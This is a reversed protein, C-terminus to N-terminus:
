VSRVVSYRVLPARGAGRGSPSKKSRGHRAGPGVLATPAPGRAIHPAPGQRHPARRKQRRRPPRAHHRRRRVGTVGSQISRSRLELGGEFTRALTWGHGWTVQPGASHGQGIGAPAHVPICAAPHDRVTPCLVTRENVLSQPGTAPADLRGPRAPQPRPLSAASGRIAPLGGLDGPLPLGDSRRIPWASSSCRGGSSPRSAIRASCRAPGTGTCHERRRRAGVDSVFGTGDLWRRVSQPRAEGLALKGEVLGLPVANVVLQDGKVELVRGWRIRCADMLKVADTVGGGGRMSGSARSSTSSTSPTRRGHAPRRSAPWGAGRMPRWSRDSARTWRSRAHSGSRGPRVPPQRDLLRGRGPPGHPRRPRPGPRHAGPVPLRRRLPGGPGAPRPRRRQRLRAGSCRPDRPGPEAGPTPGSPARAPGSRRSSPGSAAAAGAVGLELLSRWDEPGCLGLRNPGFAYRAFLVPGPHPHRAGPTSVRPVSGTLLLVAPLSSVSPSTTVDM